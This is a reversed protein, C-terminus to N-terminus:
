TKAIGVSDIWQKAVDKALEEVMEVSPKSAEITPGFFGSGWSREKLITPWLVMVQESVGDPGTVTPISDVSAEGFVMQAIDPKPSPIGFHWWARDASESYAEGKAAKAIAAKPHQGGPLKKGIACQLLSFLHFCNSVNKYRFKQVRASEAHIILLTGSRRSLVEHVWMFCHSYNELFGIRQLVEADGSLKEVLEPMRALHAVLGQCLPAFAEATAVQEPSLEPVVPEGAATEDETTAPFEQMRLVFAEWMATGTVSVDCGQEVMSGFLIGLWAAGHIPLSKLGDILEQPPKSGTEQSEFFQNTKEVLWPEPEGTFQTKELAEIFEALM